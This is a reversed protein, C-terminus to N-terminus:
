FSQYEQCYMLTQYLNNLPIKVDADDGSSIYNNWEVQWNIPSLGDLFIDNLFYDMRDVDITEPILYTVLEEVVLQANSPDTVHNQVFDVMDITVYGNNGSNLIRLGTIFMEGLKYRAIINSSNFWNKTYNPEQYYAEYGAVTTPAFIEMGSLETYTHQVFNRYFRYFTVTDTIHDPIEINFFTVTRLLQEMPSTILAGIIEDTSETDDMDYFHESKLLMEVVPQIEFNQNIFEQALPTIIDSEVEADITPKVFYRYLRRCFFKATEEQNFVMDIMDKLERDMDGANVAATITTNQFRHSFTKDEQDHKSYAVRGIPISTETDIITRDLKTKFGTLVRAAMQVDLETYNTYDDAGVQPGKGITFLELFERAYNENPNAAENDTNDLFLLMANTKTVKFAYDKFNGLAYYRNFALYDFLNESRGVLNHSITFITHIFFELKHQIGQNQRAEDLWWSVIYDRFKGQNSTTPTGGNIWVDNTDPNIPQEINLTYDQFLNSVAAAPNLGTLETVRAKSYNYSARRLLHSALREDLVENYPNISAM